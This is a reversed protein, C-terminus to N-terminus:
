NENSHVNYKEGRYNDIKNTSIVRKIQRYKEIGELYKLECNIYLDKIMNRTKLITDDINSTNLNPNIIINNDVVQFIENLISLIEDTQEEKEKYMEMITNIYQQSITSQENDSSNTSTTIPRNDINDQHCLSSYKKLPLESYSTIPISNGNIDQTQLSFLIRKKDELSKGLFTNKEVETLSFTQYLEFFTNLFNDYNKSGEKPPIYEGSDTKDYYLRELEFIGFEDGLKEQQGNSRLNISCITNDISFDTVNNLEQIDDDKNINDKLLHVRRGCLNIKTKKIKSGKPITIGDRLAEILYMTEKSTDGQISISPQIVRVIAAYLHAIKIYFDSINSCANDFENDTLESTKMIKDLEERNLSIMDGKVRSELVKVEVPQLHKHLLEKSVIILNSCHKKYAEGKQSLLSINKLNLTTAYDIAIKEVLEYKTLTTSNSITNGM